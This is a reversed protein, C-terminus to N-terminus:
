WLASGPGGKFPGTVIATVWGGYFSGENSEVREDDVYCSDVAQAYFAWMGALAAFRGTPEPYTWGARCAVASDGVAVDCHRLTGRPTGRPPCVCEM